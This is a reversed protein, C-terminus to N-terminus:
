FGTKEKQVLVFAGNYNVYGTRRVRNERNGCLNVLVRESEDDFKANYEFWFIPSIVHKTELNVFGFCSQDLYSAFRKTDSNLNPQSSVPLGMISDMQATSFIRGITDIYVPAGTNWPQYEAYHYQNHYGDGFRGPRIRGIDGGQVKFVLKGTKNIYAFDFEKPDKPQVMALGSCFNNPQKSYSYPIVLEGKKNIFGYIMEGFENKKGVVALGEAFPGAFDFQGPIVTSGKRDVYFYKNGKSIVTLNEKFVPSFVGLKAVPFPFDTGQANIYHQIGPAVYVEAFGDDDINFNSYGPKSFLIRGKTNLLIKDRTKIDEVVLLHSKSDATMVWKNFPIVFDGATDILAWSQGKKIRAVGDSFPYLEDADIYKVTPSLDGAKAQGLVVYGNILFFLTTLLLKYSFM